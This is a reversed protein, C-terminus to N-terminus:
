RRRMVTIIGRPNLVWGAIFDKRAGRGWIIVTTYTMCPSPMKHGFRRSMFNM